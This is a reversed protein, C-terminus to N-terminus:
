VFFFNWMSCKEVAVSYFLKCCEFMTSFISMEHYFVPLPDTIKRFCFCFLEMRLSSEFKSSFVPRCIFSNRVPRLCIYSELSPKLRTKSSAIVQFTVMIILNTFSICRPNLGRLQFGGASLRIKLVHTERCIIISWSM